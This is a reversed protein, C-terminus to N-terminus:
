RGEATRRLASGRARGSFPVTARASLHVPAAGMVAGADVVAESSMTGPRSNEGLAATRDRHSGKEQANLRLEADLLGGPLAGTHAGLPGGFETGEGGL